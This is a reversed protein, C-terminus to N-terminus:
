TANKLTATKSNIVAMLENWSEVFSMAGEEQLKAALAHFNNWLCIMKSPTCPTLLRVRDLPLAQGSPECGGFIEGHFVMVKRGELVGFGEAGEHAFRIWRM